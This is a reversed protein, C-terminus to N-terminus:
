GRAWGGFFRRAALGVFGLSQAVAAVMVVPLLLLAFAIGKRRWAIRLFRTALVAEGLILNVLKLVNSRGLYVDNKVSDAHSVWVPDGQLHGYSAELLCAFLPAYAIRTLTRRGLIMLPKFEQMGRQLVATDFLGYIFADDRRVVLGMVRLLTNSQTYDTNRIRAVGTATWESRYPGFVAGHGSQRALTLARHVFDPVLVDDDALLVVYRTTVSALLAVFHLEIDLRVPQRVVRVADPLCGFMADYKGAAEPDSRNESVLVAVKVASQGLASRIARECSDPRNLTPIAITVWPPDASPAETSM